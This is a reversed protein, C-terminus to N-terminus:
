GIRLTANSLTAAVLNNWFPYEAMTEAGRLPKQYESSYDEQWIINTRGSLEPIENYKVDSFEGFVDRM